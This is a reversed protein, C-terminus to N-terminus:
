PSRVIEVRAIVDGELVREAVDRGRVIEGFVTYDHDLRFNDILNVFIQADGTDRGRTSIGLTGRIHSRAGLEDRMFPGDGVYETAAPSGGQIVFGPEVRHFTLGDYYGSRALRVFRAVTYPTERPYLLVDFTGGRGPSAMTIRARWEGIMLEDIAERARALPRPDPRVPRGTWTTLIAAARQAVTTDFDARYADLRTAYRASGMEAIRDLLTMRPDRSTERQEATIRDLAAFLPSMLADRLPSAQLAAAAQLVVHYDPATLARLYLSDASHGAVSALGALAAERVNGHADGAGGSLLLTDRLIAGARMVYTRMWPSDAKAERRVVAAARRPATRALAVLAHARQQWTGSSATGGSAGPADNDILTVLRDAVRNGTECSASLADIAALAVHASSDDIAALLPACGFRQALAGWARVAEHRVLVSPDGMGQRVLAVRRATDALARQATMAWRRVQEDRDGLASQLLDVPPSGAAALGLFALRRVRAGAEADGVARGGSSTTRVVGEYSAADRMLAVADRSPTGLTRRARALAYLGHLAGELRSAPQSQVRASAAGGLMALIMAEARRAQASDAYPLRGLTRAAPGRLMPDAAARSALTEMARRITVVGAAPSGRFAQLAQGIATTAEIRVGSDGDALASVIADIHRASQLRGLARVAARRVLADNDALGAMIAALGAQGRADEEAAIAVLRSVSRAPPTSAPTQATSASPALIGGGVFLASTLASRTVLRRRFSRPQPGGGSRFNGGAGWFGRVMEKAGWGDCRMGSGETLNDVSDM